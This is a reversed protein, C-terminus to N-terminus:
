GAMGKDLFLVMRSSLVFDEGGHPVRGRMGTPPVTDGSGDSDRARTDSLAYTVEDNRIESKRRM